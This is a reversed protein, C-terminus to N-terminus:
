QESDNKKLPESQPLFLSLKEGALRAANSNPAIAVAKQWYEQAKAREETLEDYVTGIKHYMLAQFDKDQSKRAATEYAERSIEDLKYYKVKWRKIRTAYTYNNDGKLVYAEIYDPNYYVAKEISQNGKRLKDAAYYAKAYYFFVEPSDPNRALISKLKRIILKGKVKWQPNGAEKLQEMEVIMPDVEALAFAAGIPKASLAPQKYRGIPAIAERVSKVMQGYKIADPSAEQLIKAMAIKDTVSSVKIKGTEIKEVDLVEGTKPHKILKGEKYVIFQMDRKVGALKGLDITVRDESRNVVYGELPFDKIIKDAMQVVLGELRIATTSKVSEATIISASEIDIIRANVEMINQFRMVSGSIIVKVGLLKGLQTASNEDVIGTMVLKQEELVKRLLRREVVEFRGEKVLATILWEAVIKGMDTTEYGVGQLQFDLVAIKTKEFEAKASLPMSIMGASILLIVVLRKM